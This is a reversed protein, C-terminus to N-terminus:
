AIIQELLNEDSLSITVLDGEEVYSFVTFGDDKKMYGEHGNITKKTDGAQKLAEETVNVGYDTVIIAIADGKDNEFTQGNMTYSVTGTNTTVNDLFSKPNKAYGDPINFNIGEITIEQSPGNSSSDGFISSLDFASASGLILITFVALLGIVLIKRKQM